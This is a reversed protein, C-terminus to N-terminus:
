MAPRSRTSTQPHPAASRLRAAPGRRSARRWRWPPVARADAWLGRRASKAGREAELFAARDRSNMENGYYTYFWAMGSRLQELGVDHGGALVTGVVRGYQDVKGTTVVVERKFIMASLSSKSAQSFPQGREPADIGGIRVRHSRSRADTLVFSDGDAIATVRGALMVGVVAALVCSMHRLKAGMAVNRRLAERSDSMLQSRMYREHIPEPVRHM